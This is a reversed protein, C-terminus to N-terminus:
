RRRYLAPGHGRGGGRRAQDRAGGGAEVQAEAQEDREREAEEKEGEAARGSEREDEGPAPLARVRDGSESPDEGGTSHEIEPDGGPTDQRPHEIKRQEGLAPPLRAPLLPREGCAEHDSKEARQEAGRRLPEEELLEVAPEIEDGDVVQDIRGLHDGVDPLAIRGPLDEGGQRRQDRAPAERQAPWQRAGPLARGTALAERHEEGM